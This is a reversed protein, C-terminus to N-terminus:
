FGKELMLIPFLRNRIMVERAEQEFLGKNYSKAALGAGQIGGFYWGCELSGCIVAPFYLKKEVFQYTAATFIVNLLLSTMATNKQGVYLYGAGPLVANLLRAKNPSKASREYSTFFPKINEYSPHKIALAHAKQVNGQTFAEHLRLNETTEKDFDNLAILLREKKGEQKTENYLDYLIILVERLPPFETTVERLSTSDFINLAEYPRRGLYYSFFIDYAIEKKVEDFSAPVLFDARKYCTIARYLDLEYSFNKGLFLEKEWESKNGQTRLTDGEDEFAKDQDLARQKSAIGTKSNKKQPFAKPLTKVFRENPFYCLTPDIELNLTTCSPILSLGILPTLLTFRLRILARLTFFKLDRL